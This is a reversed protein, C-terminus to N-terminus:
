HTQSCNAIDSQSTSKHFQNRDYDHEYKNRKCNGSHGPVHDLHFSSDLKWVLEMLFCDFFALLAMFVLGRTFYGTKAPIPSMFVASDTVGVSIWTCSAVIAM